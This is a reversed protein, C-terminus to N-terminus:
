PINSVHVEHYLNVTENGRTLAIRMSVLGLSQTLVLPDYTISCDTVNQALVSASPTGGYAGTPQALQITYGSVRTLTGTGNGSSDVAGPACVYTVPGSVIQFRNGPSELPFRRAAFNVRTEDALAGAATGTVQATNCTASIPTAATCDHAAQGFTYANSSTVAAAGFLNHVVLIDGAAISQGSATVAPGLTDFATDAASFELANGAGSADPQARYRGGTKTLLLELYIPGSGTVRVSNPLALRVDRGIRRLATDAADALEGRRNTDVYSRIPDRLAMAATVSLIALVAMVVVLEVLTVGRAPRQLPLNPCM